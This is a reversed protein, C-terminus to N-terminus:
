KWGKDGDKGGGAEAVACRYLIDRCTFLKEVRDGEREGGIGM